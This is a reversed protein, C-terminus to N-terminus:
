SREEENEKKKILYNGGRCYFRNKSLNRLLFNKKKKPINLLFSIKGNDTKNITM